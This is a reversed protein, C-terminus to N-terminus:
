NLLMMPDKFDNSMKEIDDNAELGEGETREIISHRMKELVKTKSIRHSEKTEGVGSEM